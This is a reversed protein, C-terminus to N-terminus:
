FGRVRRAQNREVGKIFQVLAAETTAERIKDGFASEGTFISGVSPGTAAELNGNERKFPLGPYTNGGIPLWFVNDAKTQKGKRMIKFKVGIPVGIGIRKTSRTTIPKGGYARLSPPNRSFLMEIYDDTASVRKIDQKIRAASLNYNNGIERAAVKKVTSTAYRLGASVDKQFQKPELLKRMASLGSKDITIIAM